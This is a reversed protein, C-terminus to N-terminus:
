RPRHKPGARPGPRDREHSGHPPKGPGPIGLDAMLDEYRPEAAKRQFLLRLLLRVDHSELALATEREVSDRLLRIDGASYEEDDILRKILKMILLDHRNYRRHGGPGRSPSILGQDEWYRLTRASVGIEQAAREIRSQEEDLEPETASERERAM